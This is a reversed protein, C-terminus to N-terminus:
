RGTRVVILGIADFVGVVFIAEGDRCNSSFHSRMDNKMGRM